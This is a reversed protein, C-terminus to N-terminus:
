WVVEAGRRGWRCIGNTSMEQNRKGVVACWGLSWQRTLSDFYAWREIAHQTQPDRPFDGSQLQYNRYGAVCEQKFEDIERQYEKTEKLIWGHLQKERAACTDSKYVWGAASYLYGHRVRVPPLNAGTLNDLTTPYLGNDTHYKELADLLPQAAEKAAALGPASTPDESVKLNTFHYNAWLGFVLAFGVLVIM